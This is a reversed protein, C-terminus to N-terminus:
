DTLNKSNIKIFEGVMNLEGSLVLQNVYNM